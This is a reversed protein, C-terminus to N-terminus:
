PKYGCLRALLYIFFGVIFVVLMLALIALFVAPLGWLPMTVYWWSWMIHGTLKLTLFILFTFGLIGIGGGASEKM